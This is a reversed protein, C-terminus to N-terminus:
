AFSGQCFWGPSLAAGHAFYLWLRDGRATTVQWYDRTGSQWDPDDFWWEPAIREPGIASVLTHDQGRWRFRTAPNPTDPAMVPEPRWLLLPRPPTTRAPWSGCPASWGASLVQSSKEPLHSDGPHRRTIAEMGVRAGLRSILDDLGQGSDRRTESRRAAPVFGAHTRPTAETHTAELRLMDIGFGPDIEPLKMALLPRLRDPDTGPRALTASIAQMTGDTLFAQLRVTRAARGKDDLMTCLRPLLRDLGALIDGELGIPEPLSLRTAFRTDPRAPTVPEPVAGLAQDLRLVLGKGFRRALGARPQGILDGVRRLGLRTLAQTTEPDLRLAAVPLPALASHTQGTPAIRDQPATPPLASPATGGRTWHRRAARSRTARAEQDIADGSRAQGPDRGAFRALAWAGGRTDALGTRATLGLATADEEIKALLAAEGGFLHTCGTVDLILGDEGDEGVWPSFRTAWRRLTTLFTAEAPANRLRTLLAPCMAMADRLPQGPRLGDAVAAPSLSSLVQMQGTERVVAFPAAPDLRDRRILREAGLAPFWLSLIRRAPM